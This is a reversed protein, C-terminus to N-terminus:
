DGLYRYDITLNNIDFWWLNPCYNLLEDKTFASIFNQQDISEINSLDLLTSKSDYLKVDVYKIWDNNTHIFDILKTSYFKIFSNNKENLYNAISLRLKVISSIVDINNSIIYNKELLLNIKIILPLFINFDYQQVTVKKSFYRPIYYSNILKLQLDDSLLRTESLSISSIQSGLKLLYFNEDNLFETKDVLPVDILYVTSSNLHYKKLHLFDAINQVLGVNNFKIDFLQLDLENYVYVHITVKDIM